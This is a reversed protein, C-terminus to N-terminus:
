VPVRTRVCMYRYRYQRRGTQTVSPTSQQDNNQETNACVSACVRACVYMGVVTDNELYRSMRTRPAVSCANAGSHSALSLDTGVYLAEGSVSATRAAKRGGCSSGEMVISSSALNVPSVGSVSGCVDAHPHATETPLSPPCKAVLADCQVCTARDRPM